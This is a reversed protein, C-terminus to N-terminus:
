LGKGHGENVKDYEETLLARLKSLAYQMRALATNISVKQIRAIEKFPLDGQVRMIFVERQEPPLQRVAQAIEIGTEGAELQRPPEPIEGALSQVPARGSLDEQDLSLDPKRKRSRDIVINRAIRVLWGGFNRHRYSGIKRIVRIWVEQYIDDADNRSQTMNVIYGYLMPEYKNVLQELAEAKGHGYDALLEQDTQQM